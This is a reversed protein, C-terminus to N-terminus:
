NFMWRLIIVGCVNYYITHLKYNSADLLKWGLTFIPIKTLFPITYLLICLSLFEAYYEKRMKHMIYYRITYCSSKKKKQEPKACQSTYGLLKWDRMHCRSHRHHHRKVIKISFKAGERKKKNNKENNYIAIRGSPNIRSIM